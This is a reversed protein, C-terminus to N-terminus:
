APPGLDVFRSFVNGTTLTQGGDVVYAAGTVFSALDSALFLVVSAIEEPKGIRGLPIQGVAADRIEAVELSPGTAGTAIVGPCVCNARIGFRGVECAVTRTMNILAAKVANYPMAGPDALLGSISATNVIAGSGQRTMVPIVARIARFCSTLGINLHHEWADDPTRWVASPPFAFSYANNHLFDIRGFADVAAGIM